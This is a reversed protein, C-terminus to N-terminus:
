SNPKPREAPTTSSPAWSGSTEQEPAIPQAFTIIINKDTAQWGLMKETSVVSSVALDIGDLRLEEFSKALPKFRITAKGSVSRQKFDPTVDLALHLIDIERNPAYKRAESSDGPALFFQAQHCVSENELARGDM